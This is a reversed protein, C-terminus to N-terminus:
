INRLKNSTEEFWKLIIVLVGIILLIILSTKNKLFINSIIQELEM